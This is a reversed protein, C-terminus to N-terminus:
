ETPKVSKDRNDGVLKFTKVSSANPAYSCEPGFIALMDEEISSGFTYSSDSSFPDNSMSAGNSTAVESSGVNSNNDSSSQSPSSSFQNAESSPQHEEFGDPGPPLTTSDQQKDM